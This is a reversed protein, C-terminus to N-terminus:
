IPQDEQNFLIQSLCVEGVMMCQNKTPDGMLHHFM